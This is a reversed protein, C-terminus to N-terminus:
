KGYKVIQNKVRRIPRINDVFLPNRVISDKRDKRFVNSGYNEYEDEFLKSVVDELDYYGARIMDALFVGEGAVLMETLHKCVRYVFKTVAEDVLWANSLVRYEVGYSKPRFAGEAGYLERRQEDGDWLESLPLLIADLIKVLTCCDDFHDAGYPDAGETWGIHIHGAGTRFLAAGNPRPNVKRTYANYDPECGLELAEHPQSAMYEKTFHATPIPELTGHEKVMEALIDQVGKVRQTFEQENHAPDINFELAMGDVQVAGGKVKFPNEKTGQVMGHASIIDGSHDKVFVEPDTGILVNM